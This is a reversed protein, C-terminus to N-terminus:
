SETYANEIFEAISDTYYKVETFHVCSNSVISIEASVASMICKSTNYLIILFSCIKLDVVRILEVSSVGEQSAVVQV